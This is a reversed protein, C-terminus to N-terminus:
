RGPRFTSASGAALLAHALPLDGPETIKLNTPEGPVVVVPIGARELVEADDSCAWGEALARAYAPLALARLFGQPTQALWLDSRDVTALVTGARVRKVTAACPAAVVVAPHRALAERCAAILAASVLPRVADHVLVREATCAAVAAAVSALRSAGGAVVRVPCPLAAEAISAQLRLDQTHDGAIVVEDVAGRFAALSRALVSMGALPLFQKPIAAGFREGRGAAPVVLAVGTM